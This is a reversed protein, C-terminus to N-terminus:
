VAPAYYANTFTNPNYPYLGSHCWASLIINEKMNNKRVAMYEEIVTDCTIEDGTVALENCRKGWNCQLPAFVGVDLPQLKHTTYPPLSIMTISNDLAALRIEHTEHSAHGDSIFIIPFASDRQTKAWPLFVKKFWDSCITNDTWGNESTVVRHANESLCEAVKGHTYPLIFGPPCAAGTASICELVTVLVLNDSKDGAPFIYKSCINKRSGGLQIGKEDFNFINQPPIGKDVVEMKVLEFFHTISERSFARARKPDLGRVSKTEIKPHRRLFRRSWKDTLKRGSMVYVHHRLAL